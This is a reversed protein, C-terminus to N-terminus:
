QKHRQITGQVHESKPENPKIDQKQKGEHPSFLFIFALILIIVISLLIILLRSNKRGEQKTPLQKTITDDDVIELKVEDSKAKAEIQKIRSRDQESMEVKKVEILYATNNDRTSREECAKRISNIREELPKTNLLYSCLEKNDLQEVVGDCCLFFLDGEKIDHLIKYTAKSPYEQHPMIARTIVNRQPHNKAEEETIEGSAILDNVLSHDRTQFIIGKGPRMQYVRSDGIHAVLVGDTCLALFTLTTGMKKYSDSHDLEDLNAYAQQLAKEFCCQMEAASCVPMSATMKGITEAVCASAVEGNEHGGMGDCVLFVRTDKSAEGEQPFLSDEQNPKQGKATYCQPKTIIINM